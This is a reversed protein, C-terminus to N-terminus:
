RPTPIAPPLAMSERRDAARIIIMGFVLLMVPVAVPILTLEAVGRSVLPTLWLMALASIEFRRFGRACGDAALWAIAPALVVMDYDLSYPTALLLGLVLGASKLAPPQRGRWLFVLATAIALNLLIQAAYALSVPGGWMRVWAFLSQIKAFGPGGQELVLRTFPLSDVFARWVETGFALFTAAVLAVVTVAAAVITRWHGGAALAVPILLGFQPKYALLGFLVGALIPRRELLLLAGTILAATLFGNQGHGINVFVAPYGLAVVWWLRDDALSQGPVARLVAHVGALYGLLTAGLWFSLAALYPLLALLAALGLVLPPYHWGYQPTDTGFLSQARAHQRAPDFPLAPEGALVAKGAVYMNSFDTGLPRGLRDNLGTATALLVVVGILSAALVALSVLRVRERGLWAGSRLGNWFAAM